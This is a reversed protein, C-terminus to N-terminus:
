DHRSELTRKLVLIEIKLATNNGGPFNGNAAKVMTTVVDETTQEQLLLVKFLKERLM